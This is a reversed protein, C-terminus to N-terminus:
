GTYRVLEKGLCDEFSGVVACSAEQARALPEQWESAIPEEAVSGAVALCLAPREKGSGLVAVWLGWHEEELDVVGLLCLVLQECSSM